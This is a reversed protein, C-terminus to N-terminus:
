RSPETLQPGDRAEPENQMISEIEKDEFWLRQEGSASRYERM